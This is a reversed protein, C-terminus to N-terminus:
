VGAVRWQERLDKREGVDLFDERLEKTEGVYAFVPPHPDQFWIRERM